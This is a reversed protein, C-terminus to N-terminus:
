QRKAVLRRLENPWHHESVETGGRASAPCARLAIHGGIVNTAQHHRDTARHLDGRFQIGHLPQRSNREENARVELKAGSIPRTAAIKQRVGDVQASRRDERRLHCDPRCPIRGESVLLTADGGELSACEANVDGKRWDEIDVVIRCIRDDADARKALILPKSGGEACRQHSSKLLVAHDGGPFVKRTM